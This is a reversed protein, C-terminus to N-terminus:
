EECRAREREKKSPCNSAKVFAPRILSLSFIVSFFDNETHCVIRIEIIATKINLLSLVKKKNSENILNIGDM